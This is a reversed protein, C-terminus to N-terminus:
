RYNQLQPRFWLLFCTVVLIILLIIPYIWKDGQANKKKKKKKNNKKKKKKKEESKYQNFLLKLLLLQIEQQSQLMNDHKNKEDITKRSEIIAKELDRTLFPSTDPSKSATSMDGWADTVPAFRFSM